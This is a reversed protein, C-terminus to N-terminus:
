NDAKKDRKGYKEELISRLWSLTFESACPQDNWHECGSFNLLVGRAPIGVESATRMGSALMMICAIGIVSLDGSKKAYFEIQEALKRKSFVTKLHFERAIETIQYAQCNETCRRCIDGHATDVKECEPNHLALCDPMVILTDKTKNFAERNLDDYIQFALLELLYKPKPTLRLQEKTPQQLSNEIYGDLGTLEKAFFSSSNKVFDDVFEKLRKRIDPELNYTPGLKTM